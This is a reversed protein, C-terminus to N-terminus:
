VNGYVGSIRERMRDTLVEKCSLKGISHHLLLDDECIVGMHYTGVTPSSFLVVTEKDLCEVGGLRTLDPSLLDEMLSSNRFDSVESISQFNFGEMFSRLVSPYKELFNEGKANAKKWFYDRTVTWCDLFGFSFVRGLLPPPNFNEPYVIFFKDNSVSYILQPLGSAKAAAIDKKSAILEKSPAKENYHSHFIALVSDRQYPLFLDLAGIKALNVEESSKLRVFKEKHTEPCLIVLGCAEFPQKSISFEKIESKISSLTM